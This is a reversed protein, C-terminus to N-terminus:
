GLYGTAAVKLGSVSTHWLNMRVDQQISTKYHITALTSPSAAVLLSKALFYWTEDKGVIM